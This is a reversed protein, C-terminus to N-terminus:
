VACLMCQMHDHVSLQILLVQEHLLCWTMVRSLGEM